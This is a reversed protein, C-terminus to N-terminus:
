GGVLGWVNLGGYIHARRCHPAAFGVAYGDHSVKSVTKALYGGHDALTLSEVWGETDAHLPTWCDAHIGFEDEPGIMFRYARTVRCDGAPILWGEAATREPIQRGPSARRATPSLGKVLYHRARAVCKDSSPLCDDAEASAPKGVTPTDATSNM